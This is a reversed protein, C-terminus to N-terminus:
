VAGDLPDVYNVREPRYLGAHVLLTDGPQARREWVVSWDGMGAGYYAQLIGTFSPEIREGKHDPPYIHLTRGGTYPQPETQTRVKVTQEAQGTVGDPDTM